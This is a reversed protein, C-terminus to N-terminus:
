DIPLVVDPFRNATKSDYSRNTLKRRHEILKFTLEAAIKLSALDRVRGWSKHISDAVYHLEAADVLNHIREPTDHTIPEYNPPPQTNILPFLEDLLQPPLAQLKAPTSLDTKRPMCTTQLFLHLLAKYHCYIHTPHLPTALFDNGIAIGLILSDENNNVFLRFAARLM